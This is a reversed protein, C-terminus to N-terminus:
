INNNDNIQFIKKILVYFDCISSAIRCTQRNKYIQTATMLFINAETIANYRGVCNISVQPAFHAFLLKLSLNSRTYGM